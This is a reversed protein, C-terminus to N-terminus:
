RVVLSLRSSWKFELPLMVSSLSGRRITARTHKTLPLFIHLFREKKSLESALFLDFQLWFFFFFLLWFYYTGIFLCIRGSMDPTIHQKHRAVCRKHSRRFILM